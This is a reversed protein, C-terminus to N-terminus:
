SEIGITVSLCAELLESAIGGHEEVHGFFSLLAAIGEDLFSFGVEFLELSLGSRFDHAVQIFYAFIPHV